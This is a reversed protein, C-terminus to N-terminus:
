KIAFYDTCVWDRAMDGDICWKYIGPKLEQPVTYLYGSENDVMSIEVQSLSASTTELSKDVLFLGVKAPGGRWVISYTQSRLWVANAHPAIIIVKDYESECRQKSNVYKCNLAYILRLGDNEMLYFRAPVNAGAGRCSTLPPPYPGCPPDAILLRSNLRFSVGRATILNDPIKSPEPLSYVKGTIADVIMHNQCETGCGWEVVTYHGAFNPGEKADETLQTQFDRTDPNSAFDVPVPVGQFIEKMPYDEFHPLQAKESIQPPLVRLEQIQTQSNNWIFLSLGILFLTIIGLGYFLKKTKMLFTDVITFVGGKLPTNFGALPSM